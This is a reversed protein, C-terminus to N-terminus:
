RGFPTKHRGDDSAHEGDQTREEDHGQEHSQVRPERRLEHQSGRSRLGLRGRREQNDVQCVAHQERNDTTKDGCRYRVAGRESM